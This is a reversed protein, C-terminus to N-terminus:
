HGDGGAPGGPAESEQPATAPLGPSFRAVDAVAPAGTARVLTVSGSQLAAALDLAGTADVAVTITIEDGGGLPGGGGGDVALVEVGTRVYGRAASDPDVAVIDVRDGRGLEGGVAQARPLAFSMARAAAGADVDALDGPTLLEGAAIAGVVVRGEVTTASSAPVLGALARDDARIAAVRVARADLVQGPELDEAAVLVGRTDDAARLVSLTLVVGLLGALVMVVHGGSVRSTFPRRVPRTGGQVSAQMVGVCRLGRAARRGAAM